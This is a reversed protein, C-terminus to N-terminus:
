LWSKLCTAARTEETQPEHWLVAAAKTWASDHAATPSGPSAQRTRDEGILKRAM